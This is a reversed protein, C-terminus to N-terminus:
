LLPFFINLKLKQGSSMNQTQPYLPLITFVHLDLCLSLFFYKCRCLYIATHDGWLRFKGGLGMVGNM